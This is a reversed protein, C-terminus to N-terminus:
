IKLRLRRLEIICMVGTAFQAVGSFEFIFDNPLEYIAPYLQDLTTTSVGAFYLLNKVVHNYGGEYMGILAISFVCTLVLFVIWQAKKLAANHTRAYTIYCGFLIATVPVAVITVHLRFPDDYIIAGYLHHVLTLIMTGISYYALPKFAKLTVM